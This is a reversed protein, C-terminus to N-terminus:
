PAERQPAPAPAGTSGTWAQPVWEVQAALWSIGVARYAYIM